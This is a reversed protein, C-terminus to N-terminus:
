SCDNLFIFVHRHVIIVPITADSSLLKANGQLMWLINYINYKIVLVKSKEHRDMAGQFQQEPSFAALIYLYMIM